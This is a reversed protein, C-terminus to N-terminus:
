KARLESRVLMLIEGLKNKGHGDVTGWFKDGWTNGEVLRADGTNLLRLALDPNRAFKDRVLQEMIGVKVSDWDPRLSVKKGLRKAKAPSVAGFIATREKARNTKAAQYAHEVSRWLVGDFLVECPHFNSLFDHEDAFSDITRM